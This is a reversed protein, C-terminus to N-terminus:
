NQHLKCQSTSGEFVSQWIVGKQHLLIMRDIVQMV